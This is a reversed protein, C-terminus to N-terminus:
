SGSPILSVVKSVNILSQNNGSTSHCHGLCRIHLLISVEDMEAEGAWDLKVWQEQTQAPWFRCTPKM